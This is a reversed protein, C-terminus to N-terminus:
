NVIEKEKLKDKLVALARSIQTRVAGEDKGLVAAIESNGLGDLFRLLLVERHYEELGYIADVVKELELKATSQEFFDTCLHGALELQVERAGNRYHNCLHNHAIRYIWSQFSRAQDFTEFNAFAKLFVDATLDEAVARNFDVRYLFFTFIKDKFINYYALFDKAINNRDM